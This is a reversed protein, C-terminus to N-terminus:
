TPLEEGRHRPAVTEPANRATPSDPPYMDPVFRVPSVLHLLLVRSYRTIFPLLLVVVGGILGATYLMVRTFPINRFFFLTPIGVVLLIAASFAYSFYMAGWFYGPELEYKLRCHPCHTHMDAFHGLNLSAYKFISGRRCRPCRARLM